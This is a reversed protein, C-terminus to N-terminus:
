RRYKRLLKKKETDFRLKNEEMEKTYKNIVDRYQSLQEEKERNEEMLKNKRNQDKAKDIDKNITNIREQLRSLMPETKLIFANLSDNRKKLQNQLLILQQKDVLFRGKRRQSVISKGDQRSFLTNVEENKRKLSKAQRTLKGIQRRSEEAQQLLKSRPSLSPTRCTGQSCIKSFIGRAKRSRRGLKSRKGRRTNKPRRNRKQVLHKRSKHARRINKKSRM